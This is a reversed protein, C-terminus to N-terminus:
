ILVRILDIKTGNKAVVSSMNNSSKPYLTISNHLFRSHSARFLCMNERTLRSLYITQLIDDISFIIRIKTSNSCVLFLTHNFTSSAGLNRTPNSM